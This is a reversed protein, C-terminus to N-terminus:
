QPVVLPPPTKGVNSWTTTPAVEVAAGGERYYFVNVENNSGVVNPIGSCGVMLSLAFAALLGKVVRLVLDM